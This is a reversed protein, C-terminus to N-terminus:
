CHNRPFPGACLSQGPPAIENLRQRLMRTSFRAGAAGTWRNSRHTSKQLRPLKIADECDKLTSGYQVYLVLDDRKSVVYMLGADSNSYAINNANQPNVIPHFKSKNLELSSFRIRTKPRVVIHLVTDDSVRCDCRDTQPCLKKSAYEVRVEETELKYTVYFDMNGTLPKGLLREVDSRTSKLPVIGRWPAANVTLAVFALLFVLSAFRTLSNKM